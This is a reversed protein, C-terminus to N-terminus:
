LVKICIAVPALLLKKKNMTTFNLKLAFNFITLNFISNEAPTEQLLDYINLKEESKNQM